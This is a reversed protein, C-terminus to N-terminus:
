MCMPNQCLCNKKMRMVMMYHETKCYTWLLNQLVNSRARGRDTEPIITEKFEDLLSKCSSHQRGTGQLKGEM